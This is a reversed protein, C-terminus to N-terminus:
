GATEPYMRAKLSQDFYNDKLCMTQNTLSADKIIEDLSLTWQCIVDNAKILDRDWLQM